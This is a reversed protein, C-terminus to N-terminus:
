KEIRNIMRHGRPSKRVGQSSARVRLRPVVWKPYWYVSILHLHSNMFYLSTSLNLRLNYSGSHVYWLGCYITERGMKFQSSTNEEYSSELTISICGASSHFLAVTQGECPEHIVAQQLSGQVAGPYPCWLCFLFLFFLRGGQFASLSSGTRGTLFGTILGVMKSARPSIERIWDDVRKESDARTILFPAIM